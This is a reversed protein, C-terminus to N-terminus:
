SGSIFKFESSLKRRTRSKDLPQFYRRREINHCSDDRDVDLCCHDGYVLRLMFCLPVERHRAKGKVKAIQSEEDCLLRERPSTLINWLADCVPGSAQRRCLLRGSGASGQGM